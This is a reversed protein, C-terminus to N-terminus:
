QLDHLQSYNQGTNTHHTHVCVCLSERERERECVCVCLCVCVCASVRLCVVLKCLSVYKVGEKILSREITRVGAPGLLPVCICVSVSVSVSVSVAVCECVCFYGCGCACVGCAQYLSVYNVAEKILSREMTRVGAPGLLTCLARLEKLM